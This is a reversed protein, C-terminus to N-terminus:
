TTAARAPRPRRLDQLDHGRALTMVQGTLVIELRSLRTGGHAAEKDDDCSCVGFSVLRELGHEGFVCRNLYDEVAALALPPLRSTGTWISRRCSPRRTWSM